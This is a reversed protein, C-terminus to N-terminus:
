HYQTEKEHDKEKTISMDAVNYKAVELDFIDRQKGVTNQMNKLMLKESETM